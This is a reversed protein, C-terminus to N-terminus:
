NYDELSLSFRATLDSNNADEIVNLIISETNEDALLDDIDSSMFQQVSM